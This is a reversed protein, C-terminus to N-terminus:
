NAEGSIALGLGNRKKKSLRRTAKAYLRMDLFIAVLVQVGESM